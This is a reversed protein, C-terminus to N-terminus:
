FSSRQNENKAYRALNEILRFTILVQSPQWIVGSEIPHKHATLNFPKNFIDSYFLRKARRLLQRATAQMVSNLVHSSNPNIMM